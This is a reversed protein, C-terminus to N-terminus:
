ATKKRFLEQPNVANLESLDLGAGPAREQAVALQRAIRVVAKGAYFKV